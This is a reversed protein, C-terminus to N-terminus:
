NLKNNSKKFKGLSIISNEEPDYSKIDVEDNIDLNDIISNITDQLQGEESWYRKYEAIQEIKQFIICGSDPFNTVLISRFLDNKLAEKFEKYLLDLNTYSTIGKNLIEEVQKIYETTYESHNLTFLCYFNGNDIDDIKSIAILLEKFREKSTINNILYNANLLRITSVISGSEIIQPFAVFYTSNDHVVIEYIELINLLNVNKFINYMIKLISLNAIAYNSYNDPIENRNNIKIVNEELWDKFKM